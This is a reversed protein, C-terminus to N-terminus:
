KNVHKFASKLLTPFKLLNSKFLKKITSIKVINVISNPLKNKIYFSIGYYTLSCSEFVAINFISKSSM